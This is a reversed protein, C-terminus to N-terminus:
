SAVLGTWTDVIQEYEPLTDFHDLLRQPINEYTHFFTEMDIFFDDDEIYDGGLDTGWGLTLQKAEEETLYFDYEQLMTGAGYHIGVQPITYFNIKWGGTQEGSSEWATEDWINMDYNNTRFTNSM